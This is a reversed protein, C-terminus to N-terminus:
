TLKGCLDGGSSNNRISHTIIGRPEGDLLSAITDKLADLLEEKTLEEVNIGDHYFLREM